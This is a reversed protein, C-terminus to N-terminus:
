PSGEIARATIADLAKRWATPMAARAGSPLIGFRILYKAWPTGLKVRLVTGASDFALEARTRGTEVLDPVRGASTLPRPQGYATRGSDFDAQLRATLAPAGRTAVEHAVTIPLRKISAQIERMSPGRIKM